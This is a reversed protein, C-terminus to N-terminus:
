RKRRSHLLHDFVVPSGDRGIYYGKVKGNNRSNSAPFSINSHSQKDAQHSKELEYESEEILETIGNGRYVSIIM